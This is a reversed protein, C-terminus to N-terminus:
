YILCLKKPQDEEVKQQLKVSQIMEMEFGIEEVLEILNTDRCWNKVCFIFVKLRHYTNENHILYHAIKVPRDPSETLEQLHKMTLLENNIMIILFESNVQIEDSLLGAIQSMKQFLARRHLGESLIKYFDSSEGHQKKTLTKIATNIKTAEEGSGPNSIIKLLHCLLYDVSRKQWLGQENRVAGYVMEEKKKTSRLNEDLTLVDTIVGFEELVEIIAWIGLNLLFAPLTYTAYSLCNRM